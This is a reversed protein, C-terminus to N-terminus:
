IANKEQKPSSVFSVLILPFNEMSNKIKPQSAQDASVRERGGQLLNSLAELLYLYQWCGASDTSSPVPLAFEDTTALNVGWSTSLFASAKFISVSIFWDHPM